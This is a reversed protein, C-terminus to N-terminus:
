ANDWYYEGIAKEEAMTITHPLIVLYEKTCRALDFTIHGEKWNINLNHKRLWLLGVIIPSNGITICYLRIIEYDNNIILDV